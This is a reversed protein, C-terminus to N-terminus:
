LLFIIAAHVVERLRIWAGTPNEGKPMGPGHSRNEAIPLIFHPQATLVIRRAITHGFPCVPSRGAFPRRVLVTTASM